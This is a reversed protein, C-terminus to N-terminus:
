AARAVSQPPSAEVALPKRAAMYFWDGQQVLPGLKALPAFAAAYALRKPSKLLTRLTGFSYSLDIAHHEVPGPVFGAASVLAGLTAVSFQTM